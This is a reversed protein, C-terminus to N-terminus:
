WSFKVLLFKAQAFAVKLLSQSQPPILTSLSSNYRSKTITHLELFTQSVYASCYSSRGLWSLLSSLMKIEFVNVKKGFINNYSVLKNNELIM